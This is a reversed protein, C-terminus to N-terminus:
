EMSLYGPRTGQHSLWNRLDVLVTERLRSIPTLFAAAKRESWSLIISSCFVPLWDTTQDLLVIKVHQIQRLAGYGEEPRVKLKKCHAGKPVLFGGVLRAVPRKQQAFDCGPSVELLVPRCAALWASLQEVSEANFLEKLCVEKAMDKITLGLAAEFAAADTIHYITGPRFAPLVTNPSGVLLMTDLATTVEPRPAAIAAAPDIISEATQLDPKPPLNELKDCHLPGLVNLLATPANEQSLAKGSEAKMLAGLIIKLAALLKEREQQENENGALQAQSLALRCLESTVGCAARQALTDWNWLLPLPHLSKLEDVIRQRLATEDVREPPQPKDWRVFFLKGRFHQYEQFLSNRFSAILDAYKTWVVVVIPASDPSVVRSFVNATHATVERDTRGGTTGLHMDLFVLRLHQLPTNPLEEAKDGRVLVCGLHLTNLARALPVYERPEDDIVCVQATRLFTM